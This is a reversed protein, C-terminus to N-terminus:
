KPNELFMLADHLRHLRVARNMLDPVGGNLVIRMQHLEHLVAALLEGELAGLTDERTLITDANMAALVETGSAISELLFERYPECVKSNEREINIRDVQMQMRVAIGVYVFSDLSFTVTKYNKTLQM